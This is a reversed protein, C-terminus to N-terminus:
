AGACRCVPGEDNFYALIGRTVYVYGGPVAFANVIPSDLVTFTYSLNPRHTIKSMEQGRSNFWSQVSSGSYSGYSQVIEGHAQQGMAIESSETMLMFQKKGTVPNVACGSGILLSTGALRCMGALAKRRTITEM